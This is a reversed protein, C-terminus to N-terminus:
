CRSTAENHGTDFPPRSVRVKPAAPLWLLTPASRTPLLPVPISTTPVLEEISTVPAPDVAIPWFPPAPVTLKRFVLSPVNLLRRASDSPAVAFVNLRSSAREPESTTALLLRRM